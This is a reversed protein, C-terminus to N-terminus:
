FWLTAKDDHVKCIHLPLYTGQRNWLSGQPSFSLELLWLLWVGLARPLFSLAPSHLHPEPGPSPPRHTRLVTVSTGGALFCSVGPGLEGGTEVPVLSKRGWPSLLVVRSERSKRLLVSIGGGVEWSGRHRQLTM